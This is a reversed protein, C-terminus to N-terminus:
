INSIGVSHQKHGSFAPQGVAWLKEINIAKKRENVEKEDKIEM